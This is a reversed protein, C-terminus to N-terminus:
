QVRHLYKRLSKSFLDMQLCESASPRHNPNPQLTRSLFQKLFIDDYFAVLYRANKIRNYVMESNDDHSLIQFPRHGKYMYYLIVGISWIDSETVAGHRSIIEPATYAPTGCFIRLEDNSASTEISIGFDCIKVHQHQDILINSLKLDRHIIHCDHLYNVGSLVQRILFCSRDLEFFYQEEIMDVLDTACLDMSIFKHQENEFSSIFNVINQHKLKEHIKVENRAM